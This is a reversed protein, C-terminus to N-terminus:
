GDTGCGGRHTCGDDHREIGAPRRRQPAHRLSFRAPTASAKTADLKALNGDDPVFDDSAPRQGRYGTLLKFGSFRGYAVWDVGREVFLQNLRRRLSQGIDNARRCPEGNAVLRLTAIGASASLPNANFTGPHKMKPKDPRSEIAALIDARGAVCGGPLGGAVIKALTTMDPTVGYYGQAGGPHVRFGTIVEDFILLRSYRTTLERLGRLYTAALPCKM